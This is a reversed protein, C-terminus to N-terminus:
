FGSRSRRADVQATFDPDRGYKKNNLDKILEQQDAYATIGGQRTQGESGIREKPKIGNEADMMAKLGLVAMKAIRMNGSRLASNFTDIDEQELNEAAFDKMESYSDEGGVLEYLVSNNKLQVAKQAEALVAVQDESLGAKELAAIDTESLKEGLMSKAIMSSVDLKSNVAEAEQSAKAAKKVTVDDTTSENLKTQDHTTEVQTSSSQTDVGSDSSQSSSSAETSTTQVTETSM